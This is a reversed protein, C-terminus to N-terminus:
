NILDDISNNENKVTDAIKIKDYSFNNSIDQEDINNAIIQNSYNIEFTDLKNIPHNLSILIESFKYNSASNKKSEAINNYIKLNETKSLNQNILTNNKYSECIPM